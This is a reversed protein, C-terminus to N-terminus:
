WASLAGLPFDQMPTVTYVKRGKSVRVAAGKADVGVGVRVKKILGGFRTESGSEHRVQACWDCWQKFLDRGQIRAIGEPYTEMLFRVVPDRELAHDISASASAAVTTVDGIEKGHRTHGAIRQFLKFLLVELPFLTLGEVTKRSGQRQRPIKIAQSFRPVSLATVASGHGGAQM